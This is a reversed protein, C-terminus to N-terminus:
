RMTRCRGADDRLASCRYQHHHALKAQLTDGRSRPLVASVAQCYQRLSRAGVGQRALSQGSNGVRTAHAAHASATPALSRADGSSAGIGAVRSASGNGRAYAASHRCLWERFSARLFSARLSHDARVTLRSPSRPDTGPACAPPCYQWATDATNCGPQASPMPGREVREVRSSQRLVLGRVLHSRRSRRRSRRRGCRRRLASRRASLRLWPNDWNMLARVTYSEVRVAREVWEMAHDRDGIGAYAMAFFMPEVWQKKAREELAHVDRLAEDRKGMRGYTVALGWSPTDFLKEFDLFAQVSEDLRGLERLADGKRPSSSSVRQISSQPEGQGTRAGGGAARGM